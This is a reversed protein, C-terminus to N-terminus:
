FLPLYWRPFVICEWVAMKWLYAPRSVSFFRSILTASPASAKKGCSAHHRCVATWAASWDVQYHHLSNYCRWRQVSTSCKDNSYFHKEAQLSLFDSISSVSKWVSCCMILGGHYVVDRPMSPQHVTFPTTYAADKTRQVVDQTTAEAATYYQRM